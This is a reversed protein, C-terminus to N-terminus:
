SQKLNEEWFDYFNFWQFPYKRLMNEYRVAFKSIWQVLQKHRDAPDTFCLTESQGAYFHYKYLGQRMAFTQVIPSSSLAALVFPGKPFRAKGGLFDVEIGPDNLCRDAHMAVIEGRNLASIIALSTDGGGDAAIVDFPHDRFVRSFFKRIKESEGQHAVINVKQELRRLLQGAAAWNGCHGSLVILGNGVKLASHMHKEGDFEISFRDSDCVSMALKDLLVKGFTLFHRYSKVWLNVRGTYGLRKLYDVSARRAGSVFLIFYLAVPFLLAYAARLGLSRVMTYFLWNGIIGGRSAGDWKRAKQLVIGETQSKIVGPM